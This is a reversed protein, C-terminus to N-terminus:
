VTICNMEFIESYDKFPACSMFMLIVGASIGGRSLCWSHENLTLRPTTLFPNLIQSMQPKHLYLSLKKTHTLAIILGKWVPCFFLGSVGVLIHSKDDTPFGANMWTWIVRRYANCWDATYIQCWTKGSHHKSANFNLVSALEDNISLMHLGWCPHSPFM